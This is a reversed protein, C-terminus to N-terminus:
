FLTPLVDIPHRQKHKIPAVYRVRIMRVSSSMNPRIMCWDIGPSQLHELRGPVLANGSLKFGKASAARPKSAGKTNEM